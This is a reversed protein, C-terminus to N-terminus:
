PSTSSTWTSRPAVPERTAWTWYNTDPVYTMGDLAANIQAITGTFTMSADAAGDGAAFTLAPRSLYVGSLNDANDQALSSWAAVFPMGEAAALTPKTQENATTANLLLEGSLATGAADFSRAYVGNGGADPGQWGIVFDGDAEIAVSANIQDGATTQNVAFESTTATGTADYARAYVGHFGDAQDQNKSHWAVVFDGDADMAVSPAKQEQATTENVRFEGTQAVGADDYLRAYIGEKSGDQDKSQWAVVFNGADDMSVSPDKQEKNTTQNVLFEDTQALGASDFVRAYVGEKDGDQDKSQWAVVFDGDADVAISAEKQDNGTTQNVLFEGTQAVGASNFVRAYVGKGSADSGEWAVVFNGSDDIGVSPKLQDGPTNENILLEGTQPVGAANYIRAYIGAQNDPDDQAESRWVVVYSGDPAMAIGTDLQDDVTTTNAGAEAGVFGASGLTLTGNTVALTVQVTNAGADIDSISLLNGNATSFILQTDEDITQAGPVTNVPAANVALV